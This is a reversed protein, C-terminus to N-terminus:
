GTKSPDNVRASFYVVGSDKHRVLLLFPRDVDVEVPQSMDLSLTRMMVATAAAGELGQEDIKLVSEHIVAQVALPDESIGSLDASDTFVTRVGLQNLVDTLEAGLKLRLKPMRLSVKQRKPRDVLTKLTAADVSPLERGDPLLVVAEVGGIAPMAVVQWGSTRAYGLNESLWMTPVRVVGSPAHFPRSETAAEEFKNRWAVKLYLANVLAAITDNKIVGEPLLEPILNRTTKAVDTNIQNRAGEPDDRFPASRVSGSPMNELASAFAQRIRIRKDAWLTNAVELVPPEQDGHPEALQEAKDLLRILDEVEASKDGLLMSVLEDKTTGAAGRAVLALASAVSFPSWVTNAAPDGQALVDQLEVTFDLHAQVSM